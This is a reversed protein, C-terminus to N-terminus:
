SSSCFGLFHARDVICRALIMVVILMSCLCCLKCGGWLLSKKVSLYGPNWDWLNWVWIITLDLYFTVCICLLFSSFYEGGLVLFASRWWFPHVGVFSGSLFGENASVTWRGFSFICVADSLRNLTSHILLLYYIRILNSCFSMLFLEWHCSLNLLVFWWFLGCILKEVSFCVRFVQSISCFCSSLM